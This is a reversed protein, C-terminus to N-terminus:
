ATATPTVSTASLLAPSPGSASNGTLLSVGSTPSFNKIFTGAVGSVTGLAVNSSGRMDLITGSATLNVAMDAYNSASNNNNAGLVLAGANVNVTLSQNSFGGLQLVGLGEKNITGATLISSNIALGVQENSQGAIGQVATLGGAVQAVTVTAVSPLNLRGALNSVVRVDDLNSASITNASHTLTLVGVGTTINSGGTIGGQSNFAVRSM